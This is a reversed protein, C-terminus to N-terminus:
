LGTRGHEKGAAKRHIHRPQVVDLPPPCLQLPHLRPHRKGSALTRRRHGHREPASPHDNRTIRCRPHNLTGGGGILHQEGLGAHSGLPHHRVVVLNTHQPPPPVPSVVVEHGIRPPLRRHLPPHRERDIGGGHRN